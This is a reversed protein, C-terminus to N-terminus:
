AQYQKAFEAAAAGKPHCHRHVLVGNELVTQGGHQHENIHHIDAENWPVTAECVGCSKKDRFYIIERELPGFARKQDKLQLPGLFGFMKELYFEHRRRITDAKDSNVRTWQGYRQWFENPQAEHRTKKAEALKATFEDLADGLTAEWSRTYDDWLSDTLLILHIAEHNRLKPRTGTGILSDLKDLIAVLREADPSSRDFDIHAYYFDDLAGSSLDLFHDAGKERRALYLSAIQAAVTRTKGRDTRPKMRMVKRFFAHGPYRAVQPKGGLWLIFDTFDGPWADRTEQANLALGAQLRVFLDRVENPDDSEIYAVALPTEQFRTKLDDPLSMFDLSAWPCPQAKLFNPFKGEQEDKVPDFLKFAGEAFEHLANIRQQGDIIEFDDRHAGAVTRKIHHLYILPLPYGRMLSDILKKKQALSWVIGRQYEPNAKLMQNDALSLVDKVTLEGREMKM